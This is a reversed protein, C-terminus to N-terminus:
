FRQLLSDYSGKYWRAQAGHCSDRSIAKTDRLRSLDRMITNTLKPVRVNGHSLFNEYMYVYKHGSVNWADDRGYRAYSTGVFGLYRAQRM